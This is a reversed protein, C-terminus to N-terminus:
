TAQAPPAAIRFVTGDAVLEVMGEADVRIQPHVPALSRSPAAAIVAAVSGAALLARLMSTTPPLLLTDGKESSDLVDAVPLWGAIDAESSVAQAEVGAALTAVFFWTDYRRQEFPPTVWRAWPYLHAVSLTSGHEALLGALPLERSEVAVRAAELDIGPLPEALLVGTEEFL